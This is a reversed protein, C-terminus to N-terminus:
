LSPPECTISYTPCQSLSYLLEVISPKIPSQPLWIPKEVAMPALSYSGAKLSRRSHRHQKTHRRYALFVHMSPRFIKTVFPTWTLCKVCSNVGNPGASPRKASVPLQRASILIDLPLM